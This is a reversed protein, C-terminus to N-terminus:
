VRFICSSDPLRFNRNINSFLPRRSSFRSEKKISRSLFVRFGDLFQQLVGFDIRGLDVHRGLWGVSFAIVADRVGLHSECVNQRVQLPGFVPFGGELRDMANPILGTLFHQPLGWTM